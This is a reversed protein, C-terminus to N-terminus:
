QKSQLTETSCYSEIGAFWCLGRDPHMLMLTPGTGALSHNLYVLPGHMRIRGRFTQPKASRGEHTTSAVFAYRGNPFFTYEGASDGVATTLTRPGQWQTVEKVSAGPASRAPIRHVATLPIWGAAAADHMLSRVFVADSDIFRGAASAGFAPVFVPQAVFLTERCQFPRETGRCEPVVDLLMMGNALTGQPPNNPNDARYEGSRDAKGIAVVNRNAGSSKVLGAKVIVEHKIQAAFEQPSSGIFEFGANALGIRVDTQALANVTHQHVTRIIADPTGAPALLGFWGFAEFGRLGSEALTPIDPLAPWRKLSNIALGRLKGDRVLPLATRINAFIMAAGHGGVVIEIAARERDFDLHAIEIGAMQKLLEGALHSATGIGLSAYTVTRPASRLLAILERVDQVQISPHVLLVKPSLVALTIPAFDKLPDYPLRGHLWVQTTIADDDGFLLTYGDPADQAVRSAGIFTSFGTGNEITVPKGWARSLERGVLRAAVDPASGQPFSVVIRVTKQPYGSQAAAVVMFLMAALAIVLRTVRRM